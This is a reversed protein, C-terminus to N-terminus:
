HKRKGRLPQVDLDVDIKGAREFTLTTRVKDGVSFPRKLNIFMIHYGGPKLVVEDGAPIVIGAEVEQMKMVGGDNKMQHIEVFEACDCAAALLRDPAAGENEIKMFGAGTPALKPTARSWADEIEIAGIKYDSAAAPLTLALAALAAAAAAHKYM